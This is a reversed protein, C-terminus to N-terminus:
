LFASKQRTNRFIDAQMAGRWDCTRKRPGDARERIIMDFAGDLESAARVGLPQIQLSLSRGTAHVAQLAPQHSSNTSNWLVALKTLSVRIRHKPGRRLRLEEPGSAHLRVNGAPQTVVGGDASDEQGAARPSRAAMGGRWRSSIAGDCNRGGEIEDLLVKADKLDARELGGG